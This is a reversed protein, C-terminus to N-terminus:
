FQGGMWAWAKWDSNKVEGMCAVHREWIMRRLAFVTINFNPALIHLEYNHSKRWEEKVEDRKRVLIM